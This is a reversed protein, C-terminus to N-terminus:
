AAQGGAKRRLAEIVENPTTEPSVSVGNEAAIRRLNSTMFGPVGGADVQALLNLAEPTLPGARTESSSEGPPDAGCARLVEEVEDLADLVERPPRPAARPASPVARLSPQGPEWAPGFTADWRARGDSLPIGNGGRKHHDVGLLSPITKRQPRPTVTTIGQVVVTGDVRCIADVPHEADKPCPPITKRQEGAKPRGRKEIYAASRARCGDRLRRLGTLYDTTTIQQLRPRERQDKPDPREKVLGEDRLLRM